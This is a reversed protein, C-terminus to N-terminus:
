YIVFVDLGNVTFDKNLKLGNKKLSNCFALLMVPDKMTIRARLELESRDSFNDLTGPVFATCWWYKAYETTALEKGKRLLTSQMALSDEDTVCDYHEVARDTPKYYVGIETGLFVWGYQGKWFQIMWDKNQYRFKCRMTDYYFSVFPAGADFIQNFGFQRQWPDKSTYFYNGDPNYLYGLFGSDFTAADDILAQADEESRIEIDNANRSTSPVEATMNRVSSTSKEEVDVTDNEETTSVAFTTFQDITTEEEDADDMHETELGSTTVVSMSAIDPISVTASETTTAPAVTEPQAMTVTTAVTTVVAKVSNTSNLLKVGAFSGGCVVILVIIAIVTTKTKSSKM